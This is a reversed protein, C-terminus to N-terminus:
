NQNTAGLASPEPDHEPQHRGAIGNLYLTGTTGSLTVAVHSWTNLPLQGGGTLQQEGGNGSTTIGFRLGSGGGNVTMFM